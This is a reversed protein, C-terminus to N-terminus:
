ESLREGCELCFKAGPVIEAHCKPCNSLLRGGCNLCFKGKVTHEQCHPCIIMEEKEVKEGCELCFKANGPIKAGCKKCTLEENQVSAAAAVNNAQATTTGSSNLNINSVSGNLVSSFINGLGVGMGLGLGAGMIGGSNGQNNAAGELVDFTRQEQYTYGLMDMEAKRDMRERLKIYSPDDERPSISNVNFNVLKVGFASFEEALSQEVASSIEDLRAAIGVFSIQKEEFQKAIHDPVKRLLIGRFANELDAKGYQNMTGVMKILFTKSDEIQIAFRGHAGVPLIANYKADLVQIPDRTGWPIDMLVVKNIYYLECHFPSVGGFPLQVFNRILPINQTDLTHRGASFADLAKGNKFFIAEQAEHVVLQSKTNFDEAPHKWVLTDNDGEYKIVELIAM